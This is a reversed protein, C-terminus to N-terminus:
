NVLGTEQSAWGQKRIGRSVFREGKSVARIAEALDLGADSKSVYAQGGSELAERVVQLSTHQSVFIIRSKPSVRLIEPAAGIGSIGPLSIDLLVIDPQLEEAKSIAEEGNSTECVVELTINRSLLGCIVRRMVAHDDVVLVRLLPM